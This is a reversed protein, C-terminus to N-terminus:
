AFGTQNRKTKFYDDNLEFEEKMMEYWHSSPHKFHNPDGYKFISRFTGPKPPEETWAPTFHKKSFM